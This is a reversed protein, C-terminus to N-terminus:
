NPRSKIRTSPSCACLTERTTRYATRMSFGMEEGFGSNDTQPSPGTGVSDWESPYSRKCPRNPPRKWEGRIRVWQPITEPSDYAEGWVVVSGDELLATARHKDALLERVGSNSVAEPIIRNLPSPNQFDYFIEPSGARSILSVHNNIGGSIKLINQRDAKGSQSITEGNSRLAIWEETGLLVETFDSFPEARSLNIEKGSDFAGVAVLSGPSTPEFFPGIVSASELSATSNTFSNSWNRLLFLSAGIAGAVAIMRLLQPALERLRTTKRYRKLAKRIKAAFAAATSIRQGPNRALASSVLRDLFRPLRKKKSPLELLGSPREGTLLQHLVVGV